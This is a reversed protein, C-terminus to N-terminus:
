INDFLLVIILKENMTVVEPMKFNKNCYPAFDSVSIKNVIEDPIVCYKIWFKRRAALSTTTYENHQSIILNRKNKFQPARDNIQRVRPIIIHLESFEKLSQQGIMQQVKNVIQRKDHNFFHNQILQWNGCGYKMVCKVLLKEEECTWVM